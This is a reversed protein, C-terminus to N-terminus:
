LEGGMCYMFFDDDIEQVTRLRYPEPSRAWARRFRPSLMWFLTDYDM